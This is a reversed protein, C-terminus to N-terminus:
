KILAQHMWLGLSVGLLMVMENGLLAELLEVKLLMYLYSFDFSLKLTGYPPLIWPSHPM